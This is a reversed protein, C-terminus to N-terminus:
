PNSGLAEELKRLRLDIERLAHRRSDRPRIGGLHESFETDFDTIM